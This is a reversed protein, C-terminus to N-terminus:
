GIKELYLVRSSLDTRKSKDVTWSLPLELGNEMLFAGTFTHGEFKLPKNDVVNLERVRYLAEPDLGAMTVRPQVDCAFARLKWWFFVAKDRAEDVYMLSAAGKDDYPSLLRYLDGHQVVPRVLSKYEGIAKRCLAKEEDSMDKPQIEMGLRGSMAVDIRYKLPVIRQTQHNPSASIHSAMAIAPYFYSIGWQIFIRQLADTNDSVWFEDFYPLVGWSTRGGGAACAQITVDPYKARIRQLTKELGRHYEIFLHSQEDAPLYQSGHNHISMNADWKIYKIDPYNSLLTDVINFVHQQVEPNAMDLVMQNGGRGYVPERNRSKLVWEPHQEFLESNRNLMEPEIWIGFDIGNKKASKILGRIGHPLKKPNVKWDGLGAKSNNRPYKTGFWGDDMVFLEGGMSAIDAMMSEMGKENVDFYVGEWSNLLVKRDKDGNALRHKRGWKHFARSVGGLGDSSYTLALVPTSFTEGSRLRYQSDEENIGAFFHHMDGIYTDIRLKYNGSYCLAAGIIRGSDERPKGDLSLMLEGHSYHSNRVGDRDKIVLMSHNLPEEVLRGENKHDGYFHSVWVDGCRVPLYGSAFRTLTVPADEEHRIDTWTEVVDEGERTRYNLAVTFPYYSDRLKITTVKASGEETVEVGDVLLDLTMDGDAHRVAIATEPITIQGYDPYANVGAGLADQLSELDKDVLRSGYYLHKLKKGKDASLVTSTNPTDVKIIEAYIGQGPIVCLAFLLLPLIKSFKM